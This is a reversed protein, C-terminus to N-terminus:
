RKRRVRRRLLNDRNKNKKIKELEKRYESFKECTSHCGQHREKCDLCCCNNGM